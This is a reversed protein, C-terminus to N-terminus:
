LWYQPYIIGFADMIGHTPFRTELEQILTKSARALADVVILSNKLFLVQLRAKLM